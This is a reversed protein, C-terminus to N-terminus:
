NDSGPFIGLFIKDTKKYM